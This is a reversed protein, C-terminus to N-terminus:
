AKTYEAIIDRTKVWTYPTTSASKIWVWVKYVPTGAGPSKDRFKINGGLVDSAPMYSMGGWYDGDGDAIYEHIKFHPEGYQQNASTEDLFDAVTGARSWIKQSDRYLRVEVPWWHKNQDSGLGLEVTIDVFGSVSGAVGPVAVQAVYTQSNEGLSWKSTAVSRYVATVAGGKIQLTDIVDVRGVLLKDVVAAQIYTSWNTSNIYSLTAMAGQNAIGAATNESTKDADSPPKEGWIASYDIGDHLALAGLGNVYSAALGEATGFILQGGPTYAQFGHAVFNRASVNNNFEASGDKNIRWGLSNALYNDSEIIQGIMANRIHGDGIILDAIAGVAAFIRDAALAGVQTVELSGAIDEVTGNPSTGSTANLPGVADLSNRHRVWYFHQQEQHPDSYMAISSTGIKVATGYDDAAARWVETYSYGYFTPRDWAVINQVQASAVVVGTPQTPAEIMPTVDLGSPLSPSSVTSPERSPSSAPIKIYGLAALDRWTLASDLRDGRAGMLQEINEALAVVDRGQNGTKPIPTFTKHPM